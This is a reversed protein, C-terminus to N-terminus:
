YFSFVEKPNEITILDIMEKTIGRKLMRPIINNIIHSYGFGGWKTLFMKFSIDHSILIKNLNGKLIQALIAEIREGDSSTFEGNYGMIEVGFSDYEIYAGRKALSDHYDPDKLTYDCHSLIVKDLDAGIDELIDLLKHGDKTTIHFNLACDIEKQALASAKINKLELSNYIDSIGVEGIIGPKINTNDVGNSFENIIEKALQKESKKKYNDSWSSFVYYGSGMIINLGTKESIKLLGVPDRGINKLTLDVITKGGSKKFKLVEKISYLLM